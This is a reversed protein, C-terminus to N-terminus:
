NTRTRLTVDSCYGINPMGLSSHGAWKIECVFGRFEGRWSRNNQLITNYKPLSSRSCTRKQGVFATRSPEPVIVFRLGRWDWGCEDIGTEIHYCFWWSPVPLWDFCPQQCCFHVIERKFAVCGLNGLELKRSLAEYSGFNGTCAHYLCPLCSIFRLPLSTRLFFLAANESHWASKPPQRSGQEVQEFAHAPPPGELLRLLFLYTRWSRLALFLTAM